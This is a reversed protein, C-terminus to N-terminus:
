KVLIKLSELKQEGNIKVIYQGAPLQPNNLKYSTQGQVLQLKETYISKGIMDVITITVKKGFDSPISLNIDKVTPNPYVSVASVTLKFNIVELGVTNLVGDNDLQELKYYNVGNLPKRDTYFYNKDNSSNGAGKIRAIESFGVGDASRSLIFEKNNKESATIWKLDVAKTNIRATFSTLTVPLTVFPADYAWLEAGTGNNANFYLTQGIALLQNPSGSGTPHINAVMGTGVETGDSVWLETGDKDNNAAFCVKGNVNTLYTPLSHASGPNIDKIMVTGNATGDSKWLEYGNTGDNASFYLIGNVNILGRPSSGNIGPYIDKVMVTGNATGDSKWLELGATGNNAVFYLTSGVLTIYDIFSSEAGPWIDKVITTGNTTGNSRWLEFGNTGNNASFYLTGGLSILNNPSSAGSGPNIDRVMVTGNATGDTKWLELGNSSTGNNASFYLTGAAETFDSPGSGGTGSWIDKVMVTGTSTGNSKWLENGSTGNTAAFYITGNLNFLHNPSSHSGGPNIDKVLVTGAATGNSKWLERGTNGQASSYYLTNGVALFDGPSFSEAVAVTGTTTGDSKFLRTMDDYASFFLTGNVNTLSSPSSGFNIGIKKVLRLQSFAMENIFLNSVVIFAAVYFFTSNKIM